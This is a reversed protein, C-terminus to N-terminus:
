AFREGDTFLSWGSSRAAELALSIAENLLVAEQRLEHLVVLDGASPQSGQLERVHRVGEEIEQLADRLRCVDGEAAVFSGLLAKGGSIARSAACHRIRSILSSLRSLAEM